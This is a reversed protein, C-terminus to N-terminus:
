SAGASQAADYRELHEQARDLSGQDVDECRRHIEMDLVKVVQTDGRSVCDQRLRLLSDVWRISSAVQEDTLTRGALDHALLAVRWNGTENEM